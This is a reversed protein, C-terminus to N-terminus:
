TLYEKKINGDEMVISLRSDFTQTLHELSGFDILRPFKANPVFEYGMGFWATLGQPGGDDGYDVTLSWVEYNYTEYPDTNLKVFAWRDNLFHRPEIEMFPDDNENWQNLWTCYTDIVLAIGHAIPEPTLRPNM